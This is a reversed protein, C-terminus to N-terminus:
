GSCNPFFWLFGSIIWSLISFLLNTKKNDKNNDKNDPPPKVEDEPPYVLKRLKILSEISELIDKGEDVDTEKNLSRALTRSMVIEINLDYKEQLKEKRRLGRKLVDIKLKEYESYKNKGRRWM